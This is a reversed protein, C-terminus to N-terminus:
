GSQTLAAYGKAGAVALDVELTVRKRNKNPLGPKLSDEILLVLNNKSEFVTVNRKDTDDALDKFAEQPSEAAHAARRDQPHRQQVISNSRSNSRSKRQPQGAAVWGVVTVGSSM